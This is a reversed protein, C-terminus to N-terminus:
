PSRAPSKQTGFGQDIYVVPPADDRVPAGNWQTFYVTLMLLGIASLVVIKPIHRWM